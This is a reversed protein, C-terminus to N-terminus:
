LEIQRIAEVSERLHEFKTEPKVVAFRLVTKGDLTTTSISREGSRMVADYLSRQYRSLEDATAGVKLKRFCLIGTDPTHCVEFDPQTKLWDATERMARIPSALEEVIANLGKGKIVTVLPLVSMPRTTPPSKLGPNPETDEERNFYGSYLSMREFDAGDKLFLISNPIPAGMQKHPDWTISDAESDGDFLHTSEPVLKYAYGYAGDIHFWVDTGAILEVIPRIPDIAGTSTTGSTAVICFVEKEGELATMTQALAEFNMRREEDVPIKILNNEGLGLMRVAHRLSFHADATVLVVLKTPDPFAALGGNVFDVNKREAYRHLAMYLAQQNAYTGSYMFTADATKALGFLDCLARGAMEELMAGGPSVQWNTVGQNYALAIDAGLRSEAPPFANFMSQFEPRQYDMLHPILKNEILTKLEALPMAEPRFDVLPQLDKRVERPTAGSNILNTMSIYGYPDFASPM